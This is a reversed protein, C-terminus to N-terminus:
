RSGVSCDTEFLPRRSLNNGDHFWLSRLFEMFDPNHKWQKLGKKPDPGIECAALAKTKMEIGTEAYRKHAAACYTMHELVYSASHQM